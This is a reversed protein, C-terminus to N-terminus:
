PVRTQFNLSKRSVLFASIQYVHVSLVHQNSPFDSVPVSSLCCDFRPVHIRGRLLHWCELEFCALGCVRQPLEVAEECGPIASPNPPSATEWLLVFYGHIGVFHLNVDNTSIVM